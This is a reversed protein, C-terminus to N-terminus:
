LGLHTKITALETKVTALETELAVIKLQEATLTTDLQQIASHHLTFIKAKDIKKFDSVEKGYLFIHTWQKTVLFSNPEGDICELFVTNNRGNNYDFTTEDSFKFRYRNTTSFDTLDNVTLKWYYEPEPESESESESEPEIPNILTTTEVLTYNTLLRYENPICETHTSVALPYVSEVEQAIFGPTPDTGRRNTDKYTYNRCPIDRVQQLAVSDVIDVINDKIRRDSSNVNSAHLTAGGDGFYM